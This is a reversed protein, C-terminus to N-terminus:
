LACVPHARPVRAGAPAGGGGQPHFSAVRGRLSHPPSSFSSTLHFHSPSPLSFPFVFLSLSVRPMFICRPFLFGHTVRRLKLPPPRQKVDHIPPCPWGPAIPVAPLSREAVSDAM